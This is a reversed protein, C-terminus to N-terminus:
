AASRARLSWLSAIVIFFCVTIISLSMFSAYASRGMVDYLTLGITVLALGAAARLLPPLRDEYNLVYMIAPTSLLFVYDWGQPSCLPILTLLLSGELGDPASVARRRMFISVAVAGLLALTVVTLATAGTGVGLWKAYMGAVSVNDLNRLNPPTSHTVTRWWARHEDINGRVGYVVAPLALAGVFGLAAATLSQLRRRAALWPLFIVAYPKVVIALAILLGARTERGRRLAALAFLVLVGLLANVQGLVIEHGYFKGMALLTLTVLIWAPKRRDPLSGLSLTVLAAILAVTVVFWIAKATALPVLGLPIAFIAFAPLYKHQYHQDEIRYLPEAARARVAATWYVALDPMKRSIKEAFLVALLLLVAAALLIVFARRM